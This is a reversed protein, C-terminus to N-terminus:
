FTLLGPPAKVRKRWAFLHRTAARRALGGVRKRNESLSPTAWPWVSWKRDHCAARPRWQRCLSLLRRLKARKAARWAHCCRLHLAPARGSWKVLNFNATTPLMPAGVVGKHTRKQGHSSCCHHNYFFHSDIEVTSDKCNPRSNPPPPAHV